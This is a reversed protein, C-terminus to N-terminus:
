RTPPRPLPPPTLPNHAPTNVPPVYLEAPFPTSKPSQRTLLDPPLADPSCLFKPVGDAQAQANAGLLRAAGPALGLKFFDRRRIMLKINHPRKTSLRRQSHCSLM